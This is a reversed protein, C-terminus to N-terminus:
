RAGSWRTLIQCYGGSAPALNMYNLEELFRTQEGKTLQSLLNPM